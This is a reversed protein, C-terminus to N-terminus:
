QAYEVELLSWGLGGTVEFGLEVLFLLRDCAIQGEVAVFRGYRADVEVAL